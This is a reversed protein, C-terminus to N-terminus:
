LPTMKYKIEKKKRKTQGKRREGRGVKWNGRRKRKKILCAIKMDIKSKGDSDTEV